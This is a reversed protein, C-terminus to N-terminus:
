HISLGQTFILTFPTTPPCRKYRRIEVSLGLERLRSVSYSAVHDNKRLLQSRRCDIVCTLAGISSVM